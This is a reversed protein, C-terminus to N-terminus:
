DRPTRRTQIRLGAIALRRVFKALSYLVLFVLAPRRIYGSRQLDRYNRLEGREMHWMEASLGSEGFPAKHIVALVEHLIAVGQGAFVLEQVFWQDEMHRRGPDFRYPIDRKLMFSPTVM